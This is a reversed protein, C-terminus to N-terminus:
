DGENFTITILKDDIIFSKQLLNDDGNDIWNTYFRMQNDAGHNIYVSCIDQHKM